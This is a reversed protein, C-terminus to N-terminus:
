NHLLSAHFTQGEFKQEKITQRDIQRDRKREKRERERREGESESERVGERDLLTREESSDAITLM